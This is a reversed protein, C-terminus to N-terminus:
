KLSKVYRLVSLGAKGGEGAATVVQMGGCVCDGAAFVGEINTRQVWDVEICGSEDMDVGAEDMIDTASVNELIIFAGDIRLKTPGKGKLKLHTVQEKGSIEEVDSNEIIEIKENRKLKQLDEFKEGFGNVGPISYVKDAIEALLLSEHIAEHGSGIVAVAKGKFFPGDCIGCYSVGRGKFEMEGPVKLLRRQVGTAIVVAKAQYSGKRTVVIKPDDRIHLGTVTENKFSVDFRKAQAVFREMLESGSIGKPFGPFNDIWHAEAARGGFKNGELLLTKLGNRSTYIGATLGAPGGGIIIVDYTEEAM